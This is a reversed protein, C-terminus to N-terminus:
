NANVSAGNGFTISGADCADGLRAILSGMVRVKSSSGTIAATHPVCSDGVRIDHTETLDGLRAVLQGGIRVTGQGPTDLVTTGDCAHGTAVTSGKIAVSPM